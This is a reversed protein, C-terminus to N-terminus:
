SACVADVRHAVMASRDLRTGPHINMHAPRRSGGAVRLLGWALGSRGQFGLAFLAFLLHHRAVGPSRRSHLWAEVAYGPCNSPARPSPSWCLQRRHRCVQTRAMRLASRRAFPLSFLQARHLPRVLTAGFSPGFRFFRWPLILRFRRILCFRGAGPGSRWWRGLLFPGVDGCRASGEVTPARPLM